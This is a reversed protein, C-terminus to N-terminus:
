GGDDTFPHTNLIARHEDAKRDAWGPSLEGLLEEQKSFLMRRFDQNSARNRTEFSSAVTFTVSDFVWYLLEDLDNTKRREFEIGREEIIFYYAKDVEVYPSGDGRPAGAIVFNRIGLHEALEKAKARVTALGLLPPTEFSM